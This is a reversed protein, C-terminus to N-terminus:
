PTMDHLAGISRSISYAVFVLAALGFLAIHSLVIASAITRVPRILLPSRFTLPSRNPDVDPM